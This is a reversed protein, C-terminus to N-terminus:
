NNLWSIYLHIIKKIITKFLFYLYFFVSDEIESLSRLIYWNKRHNGKKTIFSYIDQDFWSTPLISSPWCNTFAQLLQSWSVWSQIIIKIKYKNKNIRPLYKFFTWKQGYFDLKRILYNRQSRVLCLVNDKRRSNRNEKRMFISSHDPDLEQKRNATKRLKQSNLRNHFKEM